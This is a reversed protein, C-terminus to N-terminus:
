CQQALEQEKELEAAIRDQKRKLASMRRAARLARTQHLMPDTVRRAQVEVQKKKRVLAGGIRTAVAGARVVVKRAARRVARKRRTIATSIRGLRKSLTRMHERM